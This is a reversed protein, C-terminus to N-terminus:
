RCRGFGEFFFFFFFFIFTTPNGIPTCSGLVSTASSVYSNILMDFFSFVFWLVLPPFIEDDTRKCSLEDKKRWENGGRRRM